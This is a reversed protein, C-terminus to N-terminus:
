CKMRVCPSIVCPKCHEFSLHTFIKVAPHVSQIDRAGISTHKKLVDIGIYINILFMSFSGPARNQSGICGAYACYLVKIEFM